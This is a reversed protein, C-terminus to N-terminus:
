GEFPRYREKASFTKVDPSVCGHDSLFDLEETKDLTDIWWARPSGNKGDSWRYGRAKVFEKKEFSLGIAFIRYTIQRAYELLTSLVSFDSSPCNQSLISLLMDVDTRARHGDHFLGHRFGLYDLKLSELGWDKWPIESFSCAFSKNAFAPIRSELFMRDFSANHCIVLGVGDMVRAVSAEDIKQGSVMKDTIGTLKSIDPPIKMEPDELSDYRSVVNYLRGTDIGYSCTAIALDIIRDGALPSLGTTETDIVALLGTRENELNKNFQHKDAVDVKRLVRFNEDSELLYAAKDTDM